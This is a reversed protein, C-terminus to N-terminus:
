LLQPVASGSPMSEKPMNTVIKPTYKLKSSLNSVHNTLEGLHHVFQWHSQGNRQCSTQGKPTLPHGYFKCFHFNDKAFFFFGFPSCMVTDSVRNPIIHYYLQSLCHRGIFPNMIQSLSHPPSNCLCDPPQQILYVLKNYLQKFFAERLWNKSVTSHAVDSWELESWKEICDLESKGPGRWKNHLAKVFIISKERHTNFPLTTSSTLTYVKPMM